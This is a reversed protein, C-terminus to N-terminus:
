VRMVSGIQELFAKVFRNEPTDFTTRYQREPLMQPLYGHLIRPLGRTSVEVM